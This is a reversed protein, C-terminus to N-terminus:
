CWHTGHAPSSFVVRLVSNDWHVVCDLDTLVFLHSWERFNRAIALVYTLLKEYATLYRVLMENM